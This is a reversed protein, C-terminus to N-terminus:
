LIVRDKPIWKGFKSSYICKYAIMDKPLNDKFDFRLRKSTAIDNVLAIDFSNRGEKTEYLDYIDPQNTKQLYLTKFSQSIEPIPKISIPTQINAEIITQKDKVDYNNKYKIKVVSKVLTEDFNYLIDRFKLYLPKFYIGRCSYPLNPIFNKLMYDFQDPSFTFYKKIKLKCCSLEDEFYKNQLIDYLINIRRVVNSEYLNQNYYSIIDHIVFHWEDNKTKIMEGDMLTGSFLSDDFWLKVIIMRPYFYGQQIKKDIFICQNTFNFKTLYLMYPNGNTRLCMLHPNNTLNPIMSQNFREHHKQIIRFNYNEDLEQLIKKKYDDSKVNFGINDCFSITGTQM